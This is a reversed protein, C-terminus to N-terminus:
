WWCVTCYNYKARSVAWVFCQGRRDTWGGSRIFISDCQLPNILMSQILNASETM